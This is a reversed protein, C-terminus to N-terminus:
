RETLERISGPGAAKAGALAAEAAAVLEQAAAGDAPFRAIGASVSVGGAIAGARHSVADVIRRAVTAGAAGPAVVLFEDGGWRAVTDVLRVSEAVVAAVERLVADGAAPGASANLTALGDIDIMVVSLETGQRGSRVVELDLVRSVTRANALGTLADTHALREQYDGREDALAGLRVRDLAISILDAFAQLTAGDDASPEWPAPRSVAVVGIPEDIGGRSIRLPTGAGIIEVGDPRVAKVGLNQRQEVAVRHIPHEPDETVRAALAAQAEPSTGYAAALALRGENVDWVYIGGRDAGVSRAALELIGDLEAEPPHGAAVFAVAAVLPDGAIRRDTSEQPM